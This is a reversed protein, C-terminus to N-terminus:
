GAPQQPQMSPASTATRPVDARAADVAAAGSRARARERQERRRRTRESGNTPEEAAHQPQAIQQPSPRARLGLRLEVRREAQLLITLGREARGGGLLRCLEYRRAAWAAPSTPPLPCSTADM